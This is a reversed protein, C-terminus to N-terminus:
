PTSSQAPDQAPPLAEKPLDPFTQIEGAGEDSRFALVPIPLKAVNPPTGEKLTIGFFVTEGADLRPYLLRKGLDTDTVVVGGDPWVMIDDDLHKNLGLTQIEIEVNHAPANGANIVVKAHTGFESGGQWLILHPKWLVGVVVPTTLAFQVLTLLLAALAITTASDWPWRWRKFRSQM